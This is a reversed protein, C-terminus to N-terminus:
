RRMHRRRRSLTKYGVVGGLVATIIVPALWRWFGTMLIVWREQSSAGYRASIKYVGFMSAPENLAITRTNGAFVLPGQITRDLGFPWLRVHITPSFGSSTNAPATNKIKVEGKISDSFHLLSTTLSTVEAQRASPTGNTLILLTGIRVSPAMQKEDPKTKAFVAAFVDGTPLKAGDVNFFLRLTKNAPIEKEQLDLSIGENLRSDDYFSLTGKDDIQKFAQVQFQVIIPQSSPNTVDIFAQKREGKQLTETYQLPQLGLTPEAHAVASNALLVGVVIGLGLLWRMM